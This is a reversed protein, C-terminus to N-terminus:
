CLSSRTSYCIYEHCRQGWRFHRYQRCFQLRKLAHSRNLKLRKKCPYNCLGRSKLVGYLTSHSPPKSPTRDPNVFVAAEAISSHTIKPESRAKRYVKKKQHRSLIPPRGSRPLDEVSGTTNHKKILRGIGQPTREFYAAIEKLGVGGVCMGVAESRQCVMLNPKRRVDQDLEQVIQREDPM